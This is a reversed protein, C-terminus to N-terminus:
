PRGYSGGRGQELRTLQADIEIAASGGAIYGATASWELRPWVDRPQVGGHRGALLIAAFVAAAALAVGAGSWRLARHSRRELAWETAVRARALSAFREHCGGCTKLHGEVAAARAPPLEDYVLLLLEDDNQHQNM